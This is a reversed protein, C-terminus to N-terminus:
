KMTNNYLGGLTNNLKTNTILGLDWLKHLIMIYEQIVANNGARLSGDLLELRDLLHNPNRYYMLGKGTRQRDKYYDFFYFIYNDLENIQTKLQEDLVPNSNKERKKDLYNKIAIVKVSM